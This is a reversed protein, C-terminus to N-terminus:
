DAQHLRADCHVQQKTGVFVYERIGSATAKGFKSAGHSFHFVDSHLKITESVFATISIVVEFEGCFRTSNTRSWSTVAPM